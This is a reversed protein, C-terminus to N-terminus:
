KKGFFKTKKNIKEQKIWYSLQGSISRCNQKAIQRLKKDEDDKISISLRGM